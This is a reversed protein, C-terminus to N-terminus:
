ESVFRGKFFPKPHNMQTHSSALATRLCCLLVSGVGGFPIHTAVSGNRAGIRVPRHNRGGSALM